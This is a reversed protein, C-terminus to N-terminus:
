TGLRHPRSQITQKETLLTKPPEDLRNNTCGTGREARTRSSTALLPVPTFGVSM